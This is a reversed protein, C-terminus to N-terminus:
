LRSSAALGFAAADAPIVAARRINESANLDAHCAYGCRVCLFKAQSKRNAKECHGCRSCTQSTYAPNVLAVKVGALAAKYAIFSRLQGFSWGHLVRRHRKNVTRQTNIRERIGKLDELAIGRGTGQATRVLAKSLCHNVVTAFRRERGSRKRLLRKPSKSGNKQLKAQFRSYRGRVHNIHAHEPGSSCNLFEGDSTAALMIVGLDVGVYDNPEDPTPEPADITAGLFFTNTRKRYLLDCQGRRRQMMGEAYMGFRFPIEVRGELTLLSVRDPTPFNCIREDYAMAGHSRFAPKIKKDRKYAEAVKAIARVTMQSSLGFRARIDYYVQKQLEIKNASHQAFAVEAIVNCAANFTELTRLLAAHQEPPPALKLLVTQKM